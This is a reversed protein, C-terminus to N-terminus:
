AHHRAQASPRPQSAAGSRGVTATAQAVGRLWRFVPMVFRDLIFSTFRHVFELDLLKHDVGSTPALVIDRRRPHADPRDAQLRNHPRKVSANDDPARRYSVLLQQNIDSDSHPFLHERPDDFQERCLIPPPCSIV